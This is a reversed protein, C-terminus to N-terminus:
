VVRTFVVGLSFRQLFCDGTRITQLPRCRALRVARRVVRVLGAGRSVTIRLRGANCGLPSPTLGGHRKRSVPNETGNTPALRRRKQRGQGSTTAEKSEKAM